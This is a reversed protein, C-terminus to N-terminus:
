PKAKGQLVFLGRVNRPDPLLLVDFSVDVVGILSTSVLAMNSSRPLSLRTTRKICDCAVTKGNSSSRLARSRTLSTSVLAM